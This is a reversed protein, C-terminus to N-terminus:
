VLERWRSWFITREALLGKGVDDRWRLIRWLFNGESDVILARQREGNAMPIKPTEAGEQVWSSGSNSKEMLEGRRGECGGCLDCVIAAELAVEDKKRRAARRM